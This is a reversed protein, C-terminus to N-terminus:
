IIDYYIFSSSHVNALLSFCVLGFHWSFMILSLGSKIYCINGKQVWWSRRFFIEHLLSIGIVSFYMLNLFFFSNKMLIAMLVIVLCCKEKYLTAGVTYLVCTWFILLMPLQVRMKFVKGMYCIKHNIFYSCTSRIHCIEVAGGSNHSFILYKGHHLMNYASSFIKLFYSSQNNESCTLSESVFISQTFKEGFASCGFPGLLAAIWFQPKGQLSASSPLGTAKPGKVVIMSCKHEVTNFGIGVVIYWRM